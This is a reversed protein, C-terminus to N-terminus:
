GQANLCRCATCNLLGMAQAQSCSAQKPQHPDPRQAKLVAGVEQRGVLGPHGHCSQDEGIHSLM